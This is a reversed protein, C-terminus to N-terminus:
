QYHYGLADSPQRFASAPPSVWEKIHRIEVVHQPLSPVDPVSATSSSTLFSDDIDDAPRGIVSRNIVVGPRSSGTRGERGRAGAAAREKCTATRDTVTASHAPRVLATFWSRWGNPIADGCAPLRGSVKRRREAQHTWGPETILFTADSLADIEKSGFKVKAEIFPDAVCLVDSQWRSPQAENGAEPAADFDEEDTVATIDQEAESGTNDLEDETEGDEDKNADLNADTLPPEDTSKGVIGPTSKGGSHQEESVNANAEELADEKSQKGKLPSKEAAGKEATTNSSSRFGSFPGDRLGELEKRDCPLGRPVVGGWRVSVLNNRYDHEHGWYRTSKTLCANPPMSFTIARGYQFWDELAQEVEVVGPPTWQQVKKWRANCRIRGQTNTRLWFTGGETLETGEQLNPLM